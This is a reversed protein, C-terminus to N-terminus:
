GDRDGIRLQLETASMFARRLSKHPIRAVSNSGKDTVHRVGKSSPLLHGAHPVNAIRSKILISSAAEHRLCDEITRHAPISGLDQEAGVATLNERVDDRLGALVIAIDRAKLSRALGRLVGGATVDVAPVLSFDIVVTKIGSPAQNLLDFIQRRIHDANAFWAGASRMVLAGPAQTAEPYGARNM